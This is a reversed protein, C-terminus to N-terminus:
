WRAHGKLGRFSKGPHRLLSEIVGLSVVAGGREGEWKGTLVLV